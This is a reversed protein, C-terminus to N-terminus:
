LSTVLIGLAGGAIFMITKDLVGNWWIGRTIKKLDGNIKKLQLVEDQLSDNTTKLQNNASNLNNVSQDIKTLITELNDDVVTDDKKIRELLKRLQKDTKNLELVINKRSEKIDKYAERVKVLQELQDNILSAKNPPVIFAYDVNIAIKDNKVVKIIKDNDNINITQGYNIHVAFFLLLFFLKKIM